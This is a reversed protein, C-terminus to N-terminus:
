EQSYIDFGNMYDYYIRQSVSDKIQVVCHKKESWKPNKRAKGLAVSYAETADTARVREIWGREYTGVEVTFTKM